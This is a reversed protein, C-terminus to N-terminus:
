MLIYIPVNTATSNGGGTGTSSAQVATPLCMIMAAAFLQKTIKRKM